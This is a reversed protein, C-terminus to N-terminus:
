NGNHILDYEMVIDATEKFPSNNALIYDLKGQDEASKLVALIDKLEYETYFRRMCEIAAMDGCNYVLRYVSVLQNIYLEKKMSTPQKGNNSKKNTAKHPAFLFFLGLAIIPFGIVKIDFLVLIIGVIIILLSTLRYKLLDSQSIEM